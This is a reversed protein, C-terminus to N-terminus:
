AKYTGRLQQSRDLMAVTPLGNIGVQEMERDLEVISPWSKIGVKGKAIVREANAITVTLM